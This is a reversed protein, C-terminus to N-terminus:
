IQREYIDSAHGDPDYFSTSGLHTFLTKKIQINGRLQREENLEKIMADRLSLKLNTVVLQLTRLDFKLAYRNNMDQLMEKPNRGKIFWELCIESM